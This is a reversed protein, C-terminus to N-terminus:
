AAGGKVSRGFHPALAERVMLRGRLLRAKLAPIGLGLAAATEEISLHEMDRLVLVVRYKAPLKMVSAEVLAQTEAKSYLQEPNDTWARVQQPRFGEESEFREDDLSQVPKRSRLLEIGTDHAISVLWTSFRSRGQFDGLHRFAKLFTEQVADCAEEPNGLIGVLTRYVRRSHRNVLDEFADVDGSQVRTVAEADPDTLPNGETPRAEEALLHVRKSAAPQFLQRPAFDPEAGLGMQVTNLFTAFATMVVAELIQEESFGQGRLGEIDGAGFTSPEAALKVAFDLLARDAVTLRAQRHDMAIQDADAAPVGLTALIETHVAVCYTNRNAASVALLIFEKRIRALVDGTFLLDRFARSEAEITDPRLTQARFLNPVFGFEERLLAFAPSDAPTCKPARLYPGSRRTADDRRPLDPSRTLRAAPISVPEFEPAPGLGAALTRRFNSWAAILVSELITEDNWGEAVARQVDDRSVAPGETALKLAFDLLATDAASLGAQRYDAIWQGLDDEAVGLLGLLQHRATVCYINGQAAALALMMREKSLQSLAHRSYLVASALGAEAEIVRPLITQARFLNPVHGFYERFTTFPPFSAGVEVERLYSM